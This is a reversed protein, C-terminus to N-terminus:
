AQSQLSDLYANLTRADERTGCMRGSAANWRAPECSRGTSTESRQGAYGFRLYIAVPGNQYGTRKKLYFLLHM